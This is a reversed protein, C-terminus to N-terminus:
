VQIIYYLMFVDIDNTQNYTLNSIKNINIICNIICNNKTKLKFMLLCFHKIIKVNMIPIAVAWDPLPSDIKIVYQNINRDGYVDYVL